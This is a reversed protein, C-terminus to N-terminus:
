GVLEMVHAKMLDRIKRERDNTASKLRFKGARKFGQVASALKKCEAAVEM